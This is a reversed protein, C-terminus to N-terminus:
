AAKRKGTSQTEPAAQRATEAAHPNVKPAELKPAKIGAELMELPDNEKVPLLSDTVYVYKTAATEDFRVGIRFGFQVSKNEENQLAGFILDPIAGPLLCAGSRFVAGGALNMAKFQGIFKVWPSVKGDPLVTEGPKFGTAVGFIEMLWLVAGPSGPPNAKHHDVLKVIDVGGTVIKVTIKKIVEM